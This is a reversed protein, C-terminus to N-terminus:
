IIIPQSPKEVIVPKTKKANLYLIVSAAVTFPMCLTSVLNSAFMDAFDRINGAPIILAPLQVIAAAAVALLSFIFAPAAIRWLVAFWRGVVLVKSARLADPGKQGEFIVSYFTFAYWLSFIIGPVVFLITGGLIILASLLTTYIAPWLLHSKTQLVSKFPASPRNELLDRIVQALAISLWFTFVLAAVILILTLLGNLWSASTTYRSLLLSLFWVLDLVITPIFFILAYLGLKKWNKTYLEWSQKIIELAPLLEKDQGMLYFFGVTSFISALIRYASSLGLQGGYWYNVVFGGALWLLFCILYFSPVGLSADKAWGSYMLITGLVFVIFPAIWTGIYWLIYKKRLSM